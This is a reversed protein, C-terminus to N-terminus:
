ATKWIIWIHSKNEINRWAQGGKEMGDTKLFVQYYSIGRSQM